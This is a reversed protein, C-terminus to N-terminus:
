KDGGGAQSARQQQRTAPFSCPAKLKLRRGRRFNLTPRGRVSVGRLIGPELSWRGKGRGGAGRAKVVLRVSALGRSSGRRGGARRCSGGGRCGRRRSCAKGGVGGVKSTTAFSGDRAMDESSSSVATAMARASPKEAKPACSRGDLFRFYLPRTSATVAGATGAVVLGFEFDVEAARSARDDAVLAFAIGTESSRRCPAAAGAFGPETAPADATWPTWPLFPASLTSSISRSSSSSSPSAPPAGVPTAGSSCPPRSSTSLSRTM